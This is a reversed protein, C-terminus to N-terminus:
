IRRENEEKEEEFLDFGTWCPINTWYEIKADVRNRSPDGKFGSLYAGKRGSLVIQEGPYYFLVVTTSAIDVPSSPVYLAPVEILRITGQDDEVAWSVM